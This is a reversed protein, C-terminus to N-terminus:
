HGSEAAIVQKIEKRRSELRLRDNNSLNQGQELALQIQKLASATDGNLFYYEALAQHAASADGSKGEAESLLSYLMPTPEVIRLHQRLMNRAMDYQGDKLLARAHLLTLPPDNPYLHLTNHM